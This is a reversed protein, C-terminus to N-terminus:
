NKSCFHPISMKVRNQKELFVPCKGWHASHVVGDKGARECNVCEFSSKDVSGKLECDSSKHEASKCYACCQTSKCDAYYHGFEQCKNCRKVYFRDTVRYAMLGIYLRDGNAKIIDRIESSVRAVVQHKTPDSNLERSYVINFVSGTDIQEGIKPNQHKVKNIFEARDSFDAVDSITITPLKSDIKAVNNSVSLLPLLKERIEESPLDVIVDGNSKVVAKSVKIQNDTAVKTLKQMDIPDQTKKICISSKLKDAWTSKKDTNHAPDAPYPKTDVKPSLSLVPATGTTNQEKLQKVETVLLNVTNTLFELKEDTTSAMQKEERTKCADCTFTFNDCKLAKFLKVFSKNCYPLRDGCIAHYKIKCKCCVLTDTANVETTCQTCTGSADVQCAM